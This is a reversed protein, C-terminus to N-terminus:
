ADGATWVSPFRAIEHGEANAAFSVVGAIKYLNKERM